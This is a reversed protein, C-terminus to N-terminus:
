KAADDVNYQGPSFPDSMGDSASFSSDMGHPARPTRLPTGPSMSGSMGGFATSPTSQAGSFHVHRQSSSPRVSGLEHIGSVPTGSSEMGSAGYPTMNMAPTFSAIPTAFRSVFPSSAVYKPTRLHSGFRPTPVYKHQSVKESTDQPEAFTVRRHTSAKRKVAGEHVSSPHPSNTSAVSPEFFGVRKPSDHPLSLPQPSLQGVGPASISSVGLTYSSTLHGSISLDDRGSYEALVWERIWVAITECVLAGREVLEKQKMRSPSKSADSTRSDNWGSNSKLLIIKGIDRLLHCARMLTSRYERSAAGSEEVAKTARKRVELCAWQWVCESLQCPTLELLEAFAHTDESM